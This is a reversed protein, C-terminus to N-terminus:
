ESVRSDLWCTALTVTIIINSHEPMIRTTGDRSVTETFLIPCPHSGPPNMASPPPCDLSSKPSGVRLLLSVAHLLRGAKEERKKINQPDGLM